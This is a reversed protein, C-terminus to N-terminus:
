IGGFDNALFRSKREDSLYGCSFQVGTEEDSPELSQIHATCIHARSPISNLFISLCM